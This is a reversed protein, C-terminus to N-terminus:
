VVSFPNLISSSQNSRVGPLGLPFVLLLPLLLVASMWPLVLPPCSASPPAPLAADDNPTLKSSLM